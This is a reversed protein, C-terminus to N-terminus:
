QRGGGSPGMCVWDVGSVDDGYEGAMRATNGHSVKTAREQAAPLPCSPQTLFWALCGPSCTGRGGCM